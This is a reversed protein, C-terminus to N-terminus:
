LAGRGRVNGCWFGTVMEGRGLLDYRSRGMGNEIIEDWPIGDM